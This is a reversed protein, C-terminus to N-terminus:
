HALGRQLEQFGSLCLVIGDDPMVGGAADRCFIGHLSLSQQM